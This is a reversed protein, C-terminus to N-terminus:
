PLKVKLLEYVKFHLNTKCTIFFMNYYEIETKTKITHLSRTVKELM